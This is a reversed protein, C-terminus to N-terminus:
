EAAAIAVVLIICVMANEMPIEIIHKLLHQKCSSTLPYKAAKLSSVERALVFKKGGINESYYFM